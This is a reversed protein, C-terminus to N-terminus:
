LACSIEPVGPLNIVFVKPPRTVKPSAKDTLSSDLSFFVGKEIIGWCLKLVRLASIYINNPYPLSAGLISEISNM